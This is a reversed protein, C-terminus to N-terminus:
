KMPTPLVNNAGRSFDYVGLLNLSSWFTVGSAYINQLALKNDDDISGYVMPNVIELYTWRYRTMRYPQMFMKQAYGYASFFKDIREADQANLCLCKTEIFQHNSAFLAFSRINNRSAPPQCYWAYNELLSNKVEKAGTIALANSTHVSEGNRSSSGEMVGHATERSTQTTSTSRTTSVLKMAGALGLLNFAGNVLNPFMRQSIWSQFQGYSWSGEPMDCFQLQANYDEPYNVGGIGADGGCGYGRGPRVVMDLPPFISMDFRFKPTVAFTLGTNDAHYYEHRLMMDQGNPLSLQCICYPATYLKMNVPLYGDLSTEYNFTYGNLVLEPTMLDHNILYPFEGGYIVTNPTTDIDNENIFAKPFLYIGLIGEGNNKQGYYNMFDNFKAQMPNTSSLIQDTDWCFLKYGSVIGDYSLMDDATDLWTSPTLIQTPNFSDYNVPVLTYTDKMNILIKTLAKGDKIAYKYDSFALDEPVLNDGFGDTISHCREVFSPNLHHEEWWTTMVDITFYVKTTENNVYEINDVFAFYWKDEMYLSGMRPNKFAIYSCERIRGARLGVKVVPLEERLYTYDTEVTILRGTTNLESLLKDTCSTYPEYTSPTLPDGMYLCNKYSRDLPVNTYFRIESQPTINAM